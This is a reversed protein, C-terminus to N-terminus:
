RTKLNWTPEAVWKSSDWYRIGKKITERYIDNLASTLRGAARLDDHALMYGHGWDVSRCRLGFDLEFLLGRGSTLRILDNKTVEVRLFGEAMDKLGLSVNSRPFVVFALDPGEPVGEARFEGTQPSAGDIRLPDFIALFGGHQNNVGAVLMEERGDGNIDKFLIGHLYGSNWFEGTQNGRSDLVALQCPWHPAHYSVVIVERLGDGNIDQIVIAYLPGLGNRIPVQSHEKYFSDPRLTEKPIMRRWLERGRMDLIVM